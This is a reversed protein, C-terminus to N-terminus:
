RLDAPVQVAPHEAGWCDIEGLERVACTHYGGASVSRYEGDPPDAQGWTNEGWCDIEGSERVACTHDQDTSVSRYSTDRISVM